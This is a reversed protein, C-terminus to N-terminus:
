EPAVRGGIGQRDAERAYARTVDDPFSRAVVDDLRLLQTQIAAQREEPLSDVLGVMAARLRRCVQPSGAGYRIIETFALEVFAEWPRGPVVVRVRKQKDAAIYRSHLPLRGLTHVFEEIYDLVQGATTPDNVAPSLARIAVDVLVRLAFAPDQEVTREVGSAILRRISKASPAKAGFVEALPAGEPLFDGVSHSLVLTCDHHVALRMLGAESMAQIAGARESTVQLVPEGMATIDRNIVTEDDPNTIERTWSELVRQGIRTVAAAVAVPRLAHTFRNVYVLLSVISVAVALGAVEVGIDPVFNSEIRRLLAFAYTLTGAFLALVVRQLRDRYWLRMYRPSLSGTAQQVVLVSITVVFGLLAIMAGVIATLVSSATSPSYQWGPPLDTVSDLAVAAQALLVGVICGLLPLVWLSGKLYQRLQFARAWSFM